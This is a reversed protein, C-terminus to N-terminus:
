FDLGQQTQTSPTITGRKMAELMALGPTPHPTPHRILIHSIWQLFSTANQNINWSARKSCRRGNGSVGPCSHCILTAVDVAGFFFPFIGQLIRLLRNPTLVPMAAKSCAYLRSLCRESVLGTSAEMQLIGPKFLILCTSCSGFSHM